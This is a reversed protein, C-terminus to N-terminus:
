RLRMAAEFQILSLDFDRTGTDDFLRVACVFEDDHSAVCATLSGAM